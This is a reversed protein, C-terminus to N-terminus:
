RLPEFIVELLLVIMSCANLLAHVVLSPLIRHTRQYLYGLGVALVFLPIPDPGHSAHMAAFIVASLLIPWFPAALSRSETTAARRVHYPEDIALGAPDTQPSSYPDARDTLLPAESNPASHSQPGSDQDAAHDDASDKGGLLLSSARGRFTAVKELWGQLLVRFLYEEALPAVLVASICSLALFWADPSAKVLTVLPHESKFWQVLVLQILYVPPALMVFAVLGLRLDGVIKGAVLGVDRCSAGCRVLIVALSVGVTSLSSLIGAMLVALRQDRSMESLKMDPRIVESTGLLKFAVLQTALLLVVAFVLDVLGWPVARRPEHELLERGTRLRAFAASWAWASATLVGAMVVLVITSPINL